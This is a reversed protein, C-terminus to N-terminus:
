EVRKEPRLAYSVHCQKGGGDDGVFREGIVLGLIIASAGFPVTPTRSASDCWEVMM